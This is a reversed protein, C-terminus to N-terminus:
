KSNGNVIIVQIFHDAHVAISPLDGAWPKLAVALLVVVATIARYNVM